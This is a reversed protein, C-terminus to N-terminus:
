VRISKKEGIVKKGERGLLSKSSNTARCVATVSVQFAGRELACRGPIETELTSGEPTKEGPETVRRTTGQPM